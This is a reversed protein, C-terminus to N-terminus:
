ISYILKQRNLSKLRRTTRSRIFPKTYMHRILVTLAAPQKHLEDNSWGYELGINSTVNCAAVEQM